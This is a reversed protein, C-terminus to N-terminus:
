AVAAVGPMAVPVRFAIAVTQLRNLVPGARVIKAEVMQAQTLVARGQFDIAISVDQGEAMPRSTELTLLAGGECLDQTHATVYRLSEAQKLKCCHASQRRMHRRRDKGLTPQTIGAM